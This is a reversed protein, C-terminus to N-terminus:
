QWRATKEVGGVARRQERAPAQAAERQSSPPLSSSSSSTVDVRGVEDVVLSQRQQVGAIRAFRRLFELLDVGLM